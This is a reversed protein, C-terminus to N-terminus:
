LSDLRSNHAKELYLCCFELVSVGLYKNGTTQCNYLGNLMSLVNECGLVLRAAEKNYYIVNYVVGSAGDRSEESGTHWGQLLM